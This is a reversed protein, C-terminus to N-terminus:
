YKFYLLKMVKFYAFIDEAPVPFIVLLSQYVPYKFYCEGLEDFSLSLCAV